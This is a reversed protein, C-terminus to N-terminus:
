QNRRPRYSPTLLYRVSRNATADLGFAVVQGRENIFQASQLTVQGHLPDSPDILTNLDIPRGAIWLTAIGGLGGTIYTTGVVVGWDNLASPTAAYVNPATLPPLETTTGDDWFFARTAGAPGLAVGVIQEFNNIDGGDAVEAGPLLDLAMVSGNKWIVARRTDLTGSSGSAVGHDNIGGPRPSFEDSGPLNELFTTVGRSWIFVRTQARGIVQNRNNMYYLFPAGDETSVNVPVYAGRRLIFNSPAIDQTGAIISRDSISAFSRYGTSSNSHNGYDTYVGNKWHFARTGFTEASGVVEGKNNLASAYVLNDSSPDVIATLRYVFQAQAVPSSMSVITSLVVAVLWPRSHSLIMVTEKGVNSDNGQEEVSRCRKQSTGAM